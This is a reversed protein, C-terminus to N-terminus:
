CVRSMVEESPSLEGIMVRNLICKEARVPSVDNMGWNGEAGTQRRRARRNGSLSLILPLERRPAVSPGASGHPHRRSRRRTSSSAIYCWPVLRGRVRVGFFYTEGPPACCYSVARRVPRQRDGM